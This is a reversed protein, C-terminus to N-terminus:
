QKVIFKSVVPEGNIYSVKIYIGPALTEGTTLRGNIDYVKTETESSEQLAAIGSENIDDVSRFDAIANRRENSEYISGDWNEEIANTFCRGSSVQAGDSYKWLSYVFYRNESSFNADFTFYRCDNVKQAQPESIHEVGSGDVYGFVLYYQNSELQSDSMSTSAIMTRSNGNGKIVLSYPTEPKKYIKINNVFARSDWIHGYAGINSVYTQCNLSESYMASGSTNKLRATLDVRPENYIVNDIVWTWFWTDVGEQTYGGSVGDCTVTFNNGERIKMVTSKHGRVKDTIEVVSSFQCAPWITFEGFSKEERFGIEGASKNTAVVSYSHLTAKTTETVPKIQYKGVNTSGLYNGNDYWEFTWGNKSGGSTNVQLVCNRGSYIQTSDPIVLEINGRSYTTLKINQPSDVVYVSSGNLRASARLELNSEWPGEGTGQPFTVEYSPTSTVTTHGDYIWSYSWELDPYNNTVVEAVAMSKSGAYGELTKAKVGIKPSGEVIVTITKEESYWVTKNDPAYNTIIATVVLEVPEASQNTYDPLVFKNAAVTTENYKWVVDWGDTYGGQTEVEWTLDNAVCRVSVSEKGKLTTKPTEWVYLDQSVECFKTEQNQNMYSLEANFAIPGTWVLNRKIPSISTLRGTDDITYDVKASTILGLNYEFKNVAQIRDPLIDAALLNFTAESKEIAHIVNDVTVGKDVTTEVALTQAHILQSGFVILLMILQFLIKKIM